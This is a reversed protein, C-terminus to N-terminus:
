CALRRYKILDLFAEVRTILGAEGSHEEFNLRLMPKGAEKLRREILDGVIAETGCAFPVVQIFGDVPEALGNLMWEFADFQLKGVTWFLKKELKAAGTGLYDPPILEPTLFHVGSAELLQLLNLNFCPDYLSYPHGLLGITPPHNIQGVAAQTQRLRDVPASDFQDTKIEKLALKIKAPAIGLELAARQLGRGIGVQEPGVKMILLKPVLDPLTHRVLDPLGMFKPCIFADDELKIIHPVLLRDVRSGLFRLHGLFIKIPLCLEDLAVEVGAQLMRQDTPPSTITELGTGRWFVEWATGYWFYLLARPIGIRM